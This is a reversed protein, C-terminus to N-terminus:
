PARNRLQRQLDREIVSVDAGSLRAVEDRWEAVAPIKTPNDRLLERKLFPFGAELLERWLDSTPNLAINRGFAARTQLRHERRLQLVPDAKRSPSESEEPALNELDLARILDSYPWLATCRLGARIMRQTLGIEYHRIIWIKSAVPRVRAWFARWAPHRLAAPGAVLFYSQLHYRQQWSDTASWLEAATFDIRAILEDIPRLPGYVSDNAIILMETNARPLGFHEMGERMAGFDYGVNRRVLIGACLPKIAELAEEQLRGANSSFLVSFGADRLAALYQRVYPQVEGRPDFHIFLAVRGGLPPPTLPWGLVAQRRSKGFSALYHLEPMVRWKLVRRLYGARTQLTRWMGM